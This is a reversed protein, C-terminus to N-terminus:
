PQGHAEFRVGCDASAMLQGGPAAFGAKGRVWSQRRREGALNEDRNAGGLEGDAISRQEKPLLRSDQFLWSVM